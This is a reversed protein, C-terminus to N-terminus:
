QFRRGPAAHPQHRPWTPDGEANPDGTRAFRTWARRVERGLQDITEWPAQGLMPASDGRRAASCSRCSSRTVRASRRARSAGLRVRVPLVAATGARAQADALRRAPKGFVRQSVGSTLAAFAAKGILPVRRLRAINPNTDFFARMEDHTSGIILDTETHVVAQTADARAPQPM